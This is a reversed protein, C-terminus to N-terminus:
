RNCLCRCHSRWPVSPFLWRDMHFCGVPFTEPFIQSLTPIPYFQLPFGEIFVIIPLNTQGLVWVTTSFIVIYSSRQVIITQPGLL